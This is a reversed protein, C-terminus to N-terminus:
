SEDNRGGFRRDRKNYSEIALDVDDKSFEPWLKDSYYFESYALQWIMFNSIRYEGSTRILLDPNKCHASDLYSEFVDETILDIDKDKYDVVLKKTARVIEDRGGYNIALNLTLGEKDKSEYILSELEKQIDEDLRTMDGIIKIKVNKKKVDKKFKSIYERLLDMIDNVEGQERRWNETSFVYATVVKVGIDLCYDTITRLTEAGAKHGMKKPIFRKKAYRGNGDMIIAIHNPIRNTKDM